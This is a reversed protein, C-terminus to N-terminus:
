VSCVLHPAPETVKYHYVCLQGWAEMVESQRGSKEAWGRWVHTETPGRLDCHLSYVLSLLYERLM